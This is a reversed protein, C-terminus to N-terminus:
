YRGEQAIVEAALARYDEAGNSRPDYLTIPQGFSPAEAIRVNERIAVNYVVNGFTGRLEQLVDQSHRTRSNVRCALIGTIELDPNLRDKIVDVTKLLQALGQLAMIHAEVPVLLERVAALANVTLLGLTPPCDVLVYDWRKAPLKAMARRLLTEAGLEGAMAREAGVMWASSPIVDVRAVNTNHVIAALDGNDTFVDLLGRGGDAVGYWSTASAQPDLDILLVRRGQEALAASLSVATSTKGSGGKQNATAITRM